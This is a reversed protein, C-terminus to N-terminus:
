RSSADGNQAEIFSSDALGSAVVRVRCHLVKSRISLCGEGIQFSALLKIGLFNAEDAVAFAAHDSWQYGRMGTINGPDHKKGPGAKSAFFGEQQLRFKDQLSRIDVVALDGHSAFEVFM